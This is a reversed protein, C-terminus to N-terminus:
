LVMKYMTDKWRGFDEQKTYYIVKSFVRPVIPIQHTVEEPVQVSEFPVVRVSSVLSFYIM